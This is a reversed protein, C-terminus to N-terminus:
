SAAGRVTRLAVAVRTILEYPIPESLPIRLNGKEGRYRAIEASLPHEAPLPPYIGIHQKFAAYYFFVRDTRFAPLQYSIRETAAPIAAAVNARITELKVRVDDTLSQMYEDVTTFKQREPV